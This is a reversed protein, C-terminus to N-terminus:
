EGRENHRAGAILTMMEDLGRLALCEAEVTPLRAPADDSTLLDSLSSEIRGRSLMDQPFLRREHPLGVQAALSVCKQDYQVAAVPVQALYGLMLAHYRTALLARLSTFEQLVERPSRCAVLITPVHPGLREALQTSLALDSEGGGTHFAYVRVALEPNRERVTVFATVLAEVVHEDIDPRQYYNTFYPVLSLGVASGRKAAGADPLALLAALDFGQVVTTRAGLRKLTEASELDRVLVVGCLSLALRALARPLPRRLPGVGIGACAIAVGCLRAITFVVVFSLLIRYSRRGLGDHFYTGGNLLMVDARRLLRIFPVLNRIGAISFSPLPFESLHCDPHQTRLYHVLGDRMADDGLNGRDFYGTLVIRM